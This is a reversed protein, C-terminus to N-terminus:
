LYLPLGILINFPCTIALSVKFHLTPNAELIAHRVVVPVVIYSASAALATLLFADGLSLDFAKAPTMSVAANFLPM